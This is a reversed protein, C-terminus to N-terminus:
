RDGTVPVLLVPRKSLRIVKDAVSGLLIEGLASHGHSGMVILDANIDDACALISRTPNGDIVKATPKPLNPNDGLKENFFYDISETLMELARKRNNEKIKPWMDDAVLNYVSSDIPEIVNLFTLKAQYKEALSMAMSLAPTMDRGLDTAYVITNIPTLM